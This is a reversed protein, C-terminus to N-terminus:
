TLTQGNLRGDAQMGQKQQFGRLGDATAPGWVGDAAGVNFGKANLSEQLQMIQDRSLNSPSIEGQLTRTQGPTQSQGPPNQQMQQAFAPVAIAASAMLAFIIKNM